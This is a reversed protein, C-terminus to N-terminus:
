YGPLIGTEILMRYSQHVIIANPYEGLRIWDSLRRRASPTPHGPRHRHLTQFGGDGEAGPDARTGPGSNYYVYTWYVTEEPTPSGYGLSAADELFLERRRSLMALMAQLGTRLDPASASRVTTGKENIRSVETMRSPDFGPPFFSSLPQHTFGQETFFTDIGLADFGSVPRDIRISALQADTLRDEPRGSTIQTRIYQDIMGERSAAVYLLAPPIKANGVEHFLQFVQAPTNKMWNGLQSRPHRASLADLQSQFSGLFTNVRARWAADAARGAVGPPGHALFWEWDSRRAAKAAPPLHLINDALDDIIGPTRTRHFQLGQGGRIERLASRLQDVRTKVDDDTRILGAAQDRSRQGPSPGPAPPTPTGADAPAKERECSTCGAICRQLRMSEPAPTVEAEEFPDLLTGRQADLQADGYQGRFAAMSAQYRGSDRREGAQLQHLHALVSDGSAQRALRPAAGQQAVHTLEHAILGRGLPHDPRYRGPAFHLDQGMAVAHAGEAQTRAAAQDNAHVRVASFDYGLADEAERRARADLTQSTAASPASPAAVGDPVATPLAEGAVKRAVKNAETELHDNTPRTQQSAITNAMRSVHANGMGAQMARM